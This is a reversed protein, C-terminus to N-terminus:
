PWLPWYAHFPEEGDFAAPVDMLWADTSSAAYSAMDLKACVLERVFAELGYVEALVDLELASDYGVIVRRIPHTQARSSLLATLPRIHRTYPPLNICLTDLLPCAMTSSADGDLGLFGTLPDLLVIIEEWSRPDYMRAPQGIVLRKLNPFSRLPLPPTYGRRYDGEYLRIWLEQVRLCSISICTDQSITRSFIWYARESAFSVTLSGHSSPSALQAICRAPYSLALRMKTADAFDSRLSILQAPIPAITDQNLNDVENLFHLHCGIPIAITHLLGAGVAATEDCRDGITFRQLSDLKVPNRQAAEVVPHRVAIVGLHIISLEELMPSAALFVLLDHLRWRESQLLHYNNHFFFRTLAPFRNTPVFPVASLYLSTLKAGHGAFLTVQQRRDMLRGFRAIWGNIDIKCRELRPFPTTELMKLLEPTSVFPKEGGSFNDIHVEKVRDCLSVYTGKVRPSFATTSPISLILPLDASRSVINHELHWQQSLHTWLLPTSLTLWRWQRCVESITILLDLHSPTRPWLPAHDSIRPDIIQSTLIFIRTLIEPPLRHIPLISKRVTSAM